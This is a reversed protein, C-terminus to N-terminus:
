SQLQSSAWSKPKEPPNLLETHAYYARTERKDYCLKPSSYVKKHSSDCLHVFAPREYESLMCKILRLQDAMPIRTKRTGAM